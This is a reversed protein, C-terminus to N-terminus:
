LNAMLVTRGGQDLVAFRAADERLVDTNLNCNMEAKGTGVFAGAPRQRGDTTTVVAIYSAGKKLGEAQLKIEVGWTHAVVGASAAVNAGTSSVTVEEIPATATVEDDAVQYGVAAGIGSIALAVPVAAAAVLLRRSREGRDRVSRARTVGSLVRAELEPPAEVATEPLANRGREGLAQAAPALDELESRCEACGVLHHRVTAQEEADLHGLVFAGLMERLERHHPTM